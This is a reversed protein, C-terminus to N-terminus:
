SGSRLFLKYVPDSVKSAVLPNHDLLDYLSKQVLNDILQALTVTQLEAVKTNKFGLLPSGADGLVWLGEFPDMNWRFAGDFELCATKHFYFELLIGNM